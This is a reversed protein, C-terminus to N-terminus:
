RVGEPWLVNRLHLVRMASCSSFNLVINVFASSAANNSARFRKWVKSHAYADFAFALESIQGSFLFLLLFVLPVPSLINLFSRVPEARTWLLAAGAGALLERCLEDMDRCSYSSIGEEALIQCAM